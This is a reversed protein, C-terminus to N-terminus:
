QVAKRLSVFIKDVHSVELNQHVPLELLHEALYKSKPFNNRLESPVAPAEVYGAQLNIGERWMAERVRDRRSVLVPFSLPVTTVPLNNFIPRVAEVGRLKELWIAFNRRRVSAVDRVNQLSLILRAISSMCQPAEMREMSAIHEDRMKLSGRRGFGGFASPPVQLKWLMWRLTEQIIERVVDRMRLEACPQLPRFRESKVLLAGGARIPYTKSLSFIAVNGAIGVNAVMHPTLLVHACDEILSADSEACVKAVDRMAQPFGFYHVILVARAEKSRLLARIQELSPEMETNVDYFYADMGSAMVTRTVSQCIYAPLLISRSEKKVENLVAALAHVGRRYFTIDKWDHNERRFKLCSFPSFV